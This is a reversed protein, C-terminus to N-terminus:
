RRAKKLHNEVQFHAIRIHARRSRYAASKYTHEEQWQCSCWVLFCNESIQAVETIPFTETMRRRKEQRNILAQPVLQTQPAGRGTILRVRNQKLDFKSEILNSRLWHIATAVILKRTAAYTRSM